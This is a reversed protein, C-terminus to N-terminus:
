KQNLTAVDCRSAAEIIVNAAQNTDLQELAVEAVTRAELLDAKLKRIQGYLRRVENESISLLENEDWWANRETELEQIRDHVNEAMM